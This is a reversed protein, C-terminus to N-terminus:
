FLPVSSTLREQVGTDTHEKKQGMVTANGVASVILTDAREAKTFYIRRNSSDNIEIIGGKDKLEFLFVM